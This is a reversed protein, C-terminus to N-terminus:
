TLLTATVSGVPVVLTTSATVPAATGILAPLIVSEIYGHWSREKLVVGHLGSSTLLAAELKSRRANRGLGCEGRCVARRFRVVLRGLSFARHSLQTPDLPRSARVPVPLLRFGCSSTASPRKRAKASATHSIITLAECVPGFAERLYYTDTQAAKPTKFARIHQVYAELVTGIPTRTPLPNDQGRLQASELQRAREKAIQLNDTRLRVRDPM